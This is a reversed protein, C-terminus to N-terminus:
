AVANVVQTSMPPTLPPSRAATLKPRRNTENAITSPMVTTTHQTKTSANPLCSRQVERRQWTPWPCPSAVVAGRGESLDMRSSKGSCM